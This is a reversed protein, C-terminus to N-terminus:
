RNAKTIINELSITCCMSVLIHDSIFLHFFININIASLRANSNRLTLTLTCNCVIHPADIGRPTPASVMQVRLKALQWVDYKSTRRPCVRPFREATWNLLCPYQCGFVMFQTTQVMNNISSYLTLKVSFYCNGINRMYDPVRARCHRVVLLCALMRRATQFNSVSSLCVKQTKNVKKDVVLVILLPVVTQAGDTATKRFSERLV